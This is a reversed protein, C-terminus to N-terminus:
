PLAKVFKDALAFYLKELTQAESAITPRGEVRYVLSIASRGRSGLVVFIQAPIAVGDQQLTFGVLMARDINPLSIERSPIMAITAKNGGGVDVVPDTCDNSAQKLANFNAVLDSQTAFTFTSSTVVVGVAPTSNAEVRYVVSHRALVADPAPIGCLDPGDEFPASAWGTSGALSSVDDTTLLAADAEEV